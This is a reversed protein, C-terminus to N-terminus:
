KMEDEENLLIFEDKEPVIALTRGDDWHMHIQGIDDIFIVTGRQGPEVPFFPDDMHVMEIRSGVRINKM